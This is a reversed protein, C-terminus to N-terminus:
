FQLTKLYDYNRKMSALEDKPNEQEVYCPKKQVDPIAALLARLNMRGTGLETDHSGDAVVDKIHFTWYRDRYDILYKM